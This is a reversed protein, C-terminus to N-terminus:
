LDEIDLIIQAAKKKIASKEADSMKSAVHVAMGIRPNGKFTEAHRLWFNWYLANLPCAKPGTRDKPDYPCGACYNSMKSVYNAACCYPKSGLFGGDAHQSMGIVNPAEVWQFADIYVGLYWKEVDAPDIGATMCFSGIVMLRQIHHAYATDLSQGVAHRMCSMKIAKSKATNWFWAPLPTTHQLGNMGTYAPMKAWYVGRVYERWGIIQRVFGETAALPVKTAAAGTGQEHAQIVAQVVELPHLLKVNIAFSLRSHFLRDSSTHMADEYLGFKPLGREVFAQLQALAESRDVPWPFASASPNGMTKIGTAAMESWLASHDHSFDWSKPPSPSGPWPKRNDHDFNWQGGKPSGDKNLLLGYRERMQRYYSEMLWRKKGAFHDAVGSRKDLFHESSCCVVGGKGLTGTLESSLKSLEDDVRWDDAEQYELRTAQTQAVIWKLNETFTGTNKKEGLPLYFVRHGDRCLLQSMRRMGAFIAILKQAHHVVNDTESRLELFAYLVSPDVAKFWSHQVNLQDGQILRLTRCRALPASAFGTSASVAKASVTPVVAMASPPASPPPAASAVHPSRARKRSASIPQADHKVSAVAVSSERSSSSEEDIVVVPAGAGKKSGAKSLVKEVPKAIRLAQSALQGPLSKKGRLM